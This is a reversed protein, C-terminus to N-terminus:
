DACNVCRSAEPMAMLRALPIPEGCEVCFGFDPDDEDIRKLAYELGVQRNRLQALAAENVSKNQIADMRSVEDMGDAGPPVPKTLEKLAEIDQAIRALDAVIRDRLKQRDNPTM